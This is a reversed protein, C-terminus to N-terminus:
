NDDSIAPEAHRICALRWSSLQIFLLHIPPSELKTAHFCIAQRRKCVITRQWKNTSIESLTYKSWTKGVSVTARQTHTERNRREAGESGRSIAIRAKSAARARSSLSNLIQQRCHPSPLFSSAATSSCFHSPLPAQFETWRDSFALKNM